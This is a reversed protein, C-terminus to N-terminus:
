FQNREEHKQMQHSLLLFSVLGVPLGFGLLWSGANIMFDFM